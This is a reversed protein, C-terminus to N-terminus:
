RYLGDDSEDDDEREVFTKTLLEADVTNTRIFIKEPDDSSVNVTKAESYYFSCKGKELVEAFQCIFPNM